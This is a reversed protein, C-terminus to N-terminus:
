NGGHILGEIEDYITLIVLDHIKCMRDYYKLCEERTGVYLIKYDKKDMVYMEKEEKKIDYEECFSDFEEDTMKNFINYKLKDISEEKPELKIYEKLIDVVEDGKLSSCCSDAKRTFSSLPCDKCDIDMDSCEFAYIVGEETYYEEKIRELARKAEEGIEENYNMCKIYSLDM